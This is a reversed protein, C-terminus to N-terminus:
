APEPAQKRYPLHYTGMKIKSLTTRHVGYEASLDKNKEGAELRARIEAVQKEDLKRLAAAVKDVWLIKRGSHAASMKCRTEETHRRISSAAGIKRKTEESHKRGIWTQRMREKTEPPLGSVGDGGKTNNTLPWGLERGRAIWFIERQKWCDGAAVTELIEITPKLGKAKLTRLWHARHCECTENMHNQLREKPRISKGIYRFAGTEPDVLAYIYAPSESLRRKPNPTALIL